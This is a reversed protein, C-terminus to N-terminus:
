SGITELPFRPGTLEGKEDKCNCLTKGLVEEPTRDIYKKVQSKCGTCKLNTGVIRVNNSEGPTRLGKNLEM